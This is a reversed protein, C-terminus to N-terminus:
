PIVIELDSNNFHYSKNQLFFPISTLATAGGSIGILVPVNTKNKSELGEGTLMTIGRILFGSSAIFLPGCVARWKKLRTSEIELYSIDSIPVETQDELIFTSDGTTQLFGYDKSIETGLISDSFQRYYIKTGFPIEVSKGTKNNRILVQSQVTHGIILFSVFCLLTFFKRTHIKFAPM